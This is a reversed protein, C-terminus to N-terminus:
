GGLCPDDVVLGSPVTAPVEDCLDRAAEDTLAELFMVLDKVGNETISRSGVSRRLTRFTESSLTRSTRRTQTSLMWPM